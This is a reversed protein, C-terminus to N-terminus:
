RERYRRKAYCIGRKHARTGPIVPAIDKEWSEVDPRSATDIM